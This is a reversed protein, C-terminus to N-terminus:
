LMKFEIRNDQLKKLLDTKRFAIGPTLVGTQIKNIPDLFTLVTQAAIIKTADYGPEPGNVKVKVTKNPPYKELKTESWGNGILKLEFSTADIQEQTPGNKGEFLGFSFFEPHNKLLNFSFNFKTCIKMIVHSIFTFGLNWISPFMIYTEVQLPRQHGDHKLLHTSTRKCVSRDSGPFPVSWGDPTKIARNKRKLPYEVPKSQVFLPGGPGYIKQRVKKLENKNRYGNILSLWTGYNGQLKKTSKVTLYSEVSNLQGNFQNELYLIGMEIPVSDFGCGSIITVGNDKAKDNYLLQIKEMYLPEGSLDIQHTASEICAKIVKEGFISYPGVCNVLLNTEKCMKVLSRHDNIDAEVIPITPIDKDAKESNLKLLENLKRKNRGGIAWKIGTKRDLLRSLEQVVYQGTFGTGGFVIFDFKRKMEM